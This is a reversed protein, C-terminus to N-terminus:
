KKQAKKYEVELQLFVICMNLMARGLPTTSDFSEKLSIFEVNYKQFLELMHSFDQVSRSFRDLRYVVVRAILGSEVDQMLQQLQPRNTNKASFGDDLYERASDGNVKHRCFELQDKISVSDEKEVSSQRAYIADTKNTDTM